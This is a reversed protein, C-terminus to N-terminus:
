IQMINQEVREFNNWGHRYNRMTLERRSQRKQNIQLHVREWNRHLRTRLSNRTKLKSTQVRVAQGLDIGIEDFVKQVIEDTEAEDGDTEMVDDIADEMMEQKMDMLESEKEFDMMIKQIAPLQIKKNMSSMAKTVGKLADAM